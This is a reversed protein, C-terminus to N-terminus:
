DPKCGPMHKRSIEVFKRFLRIFEVTDKEGMESFVGTISTKIKDTERKIRDRGADTITVLINRRNNKDIERVIQGKKELVGLLASIRATSSHMAASLESPFTENKNLALYHLVFLEGKNARNFDELMNKRNGAILEGFVAGAEEIYGEPVNEPRKEAQSETPGAPRKEAQAEPQEKFPMLQQM